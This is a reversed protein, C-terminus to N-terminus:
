CILKTYVCRARYVLEAHVFMVATILKVTSCVSLRTNYPPCGVGHQYLGENTPVTGRYGHGVVGVNTGVSRVVCAGRLFSKKKPKVDIRPSTQAQQSTCVQEGRFLLTRFKQKKVQPKSSLKWKLCSKRKRGQSDFPCLLM